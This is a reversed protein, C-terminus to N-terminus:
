MGGRMTRIDDGGSERGRGHRACRVVPFPSPAWFGMVGKHSARGTEGGRGFPIQTNQGVGVGEM